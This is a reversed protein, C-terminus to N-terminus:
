SGGIGTAPLVAAKTWFPYAIQRGLKLWALAALPLGACRAVAAGHLLADCGESATRVAVGDRMDGVVYDIVNAGLPRLAGFRDEHPRTRTLV